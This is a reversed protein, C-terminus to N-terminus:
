WCPPALTKCFIGHAVCPPPSHCPQFCHAPSDFSASGGPSCVSPFAVGDRMFFTGSQVGPPRTPQQTSKDRLLVLSHAVSHQAPCSSSRPPPPKLVAARACLAWVQFSSPLNTEWGGMGVTSQPPSHCPQFCHAPPDFSASGGPSCVSPFAVGDRM